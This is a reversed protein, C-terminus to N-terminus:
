HIAFCSFGRIIRSTHRKKVNSIKLTIKIKICKIYVYPGLTIAISVTHETWM